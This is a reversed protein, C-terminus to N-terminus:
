LGTSSGSCVMSVDGTLVFQGARRLIHTWCLVVRHLEWPGSTAQERGTPKLGEGVPVKEVETDSREM